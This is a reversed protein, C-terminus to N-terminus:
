WKSWFEAMSACYRSSAECQFIIHVDNSLTALRAWEESRAQWKAQREPDGKAM